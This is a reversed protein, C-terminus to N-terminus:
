FIGTRLNFLSTADISIIQPRSSASIPQIIQALPSAAIQPPNIADYTAAFRDILRQRGEESKIEEFDFRTELIDVIRQAPLVNIADPLGFATFIFERLPRDSLLGFYSSLQPAQREFYLALRAGPSREGERQEVRVNKYRDIISDILETDQFNKENGAAFNFAGAFVLFKPDILKNVLSDDDSIDETLAKQFIGRSNIQSELDFATLAFRYLRFDGLFDDATKVNGINERFYNIERQFEPVKEIRELEVPFRRKIVNVTALTSM